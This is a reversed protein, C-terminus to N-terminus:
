FSKKQGPLVFRPDAEQNREPRRRRQDMRNSYLDVVKGDNGGLLGLLSDTGITMPISHVSGDCFATLMNGKSTLLKKAVDEDVSLCEPKAWHTALSDPVEAVLITNSSGDTIRGFTAGKGDVGGLVGSGRDGKFGRYVTMGEPLSRLPSKFVDPTKALVTKNHASDWPEDFKIQDYLNSQEIYPLIHVRWSFAHDGATKKPKDTPFRMNASEYNLSALSLQRLNNLSQTLQATQRVQGVAPLLMGVMVPVGMAVSNSPITQRAEIEIGQESTRVLVMTPKIKRIVSRAPPLELGSLLTAMDPGVQGGFMTSAGTKLVQLYPYTLQAQLKADAYIMGSLKTEGQLFKSESLKKVQMDDMLIEDAPLDKIATMVAQPFMGIYVRDQKVCFSTEVFVDPFTMSYITEGAYAQKFLGPRYRAPVDKVKQGVTKFFAEVATTLKKADKVEGVLTMGTMWGDSAGNFLMWSNGLNRLLDEELDIGTNDLLEQKFRGFDSGQGGLLTEATRILDLLGDNDLTIAAAGLSDAPVDEFLSDKVPHKTLLGLMGEIEGADLLVHTVSGEDNLGSVMQVQQVNSVGLLESVMNANAGVAKRISRLVSEMDLFALSHVHNLARARQDLKTLWAPQRTGKMRKIANSYADEGIAVVLIEGANGFYLTGASDQLEIKYAQSGALDVKPTSQGEENVMEVMQSVFKEADGGLDVLMAAKVVPPEQMDRVVTIEEIFMCGSREFISAVLKPSLAHLLELKEQPMGESSMIAPAMLGARRRLDDVFARVEPEAMLAQTANGAIPKEPASNWAIYSVCKEPAARKYWDSDVQQCNGTQPQVLVLVFFTVACSARLIQQLM